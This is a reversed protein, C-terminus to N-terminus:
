LRSVSCTYSITLSLVPSLYDYKFHHQNDFTLLEPIQSYVCYFVKSLTKLFESPMVVGPCPSQTLQWAGSQFLLFCIVLIYIM